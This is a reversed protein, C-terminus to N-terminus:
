PRGGGAQRWPGVDFARRKLDDAAAGGAGLGCRDSGPESGVDRQDFAVDDPTRCVQPVANRRLGHDGRAGGEALEALGGLHAQVRLRRLDVEVRKAAADGADHPPELLRTAAQELALPHADDHAGTAQDVLVGDLHRRGVTEGLLKGSVPDQHGGAAAGADGLESMGVAVPDEGGAVGVRGLLDGLVEDHDTRADRADLEHVHEQREAGLHRQDDASILHQGLLVGLDGGHQLVVEHTAADLQELTRTRGADLAGLVPDLDDAVVPPNRDARM